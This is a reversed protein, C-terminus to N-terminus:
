SRILAEAPSGGRRACRRSPFPRADHPLGIFHGYGEVSDRESAADRQHSLFTMRIEFVEDLFEASEDVAAVELVEFALCRAPDSCEGEAARLGELEAARKGLEANLIEGVEELYVAAGDTAPLVAVDFDGLGDHGEDREEGVFVRAALGVQHALQRAGLSVAGLFDVDVGGLAAMGFTWGDSQQLDGRAM